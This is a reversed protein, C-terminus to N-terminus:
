FLGWINCRIRLMVGKQRKTFWNGQIILFRFSFVHLFVCGETCCSAAFTELVPIAGWILEMEFLM